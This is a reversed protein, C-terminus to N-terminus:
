RSCPFHALYRQVYMQSKERDSPAPLALVRFTQPSVRETMARITDGKGAADRGEFVVIIQQGTEKVWDQLSCLESQLDRLAHEYEKRKLKPSATEALLSGSFDWTCNTRGYEERRNLGRKYLSRANETVVCIRAVRKLMIRQM